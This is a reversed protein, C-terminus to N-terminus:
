SRDLNVLINAYQSVKAEIQAPTTGAPFNLALLSQEAPHVTDHVLVEAVLTGDLNETVKTCRYTAAM